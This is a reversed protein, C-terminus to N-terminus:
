VRMGGVQGLFEIESIKWRELVDSDELRIRILKAGPYRFQVRGTPAPQGAVVQLVESHLNRYKLVVRFNPSLDLGASTLLIKQVFKTLEKAELYLDKSEIFCTFVESFTTIPIIPGVGGLQIGLTFRGEAM